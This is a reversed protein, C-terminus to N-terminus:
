RSKHATGKVSPPVFVDDSEDITSGEHGALAMERELEQLGAGADLAIWNEDKSRRPRRTAM